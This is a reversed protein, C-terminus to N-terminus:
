TNNAVVAGIVAGVIAATNVEGQSHGEDHREPPDDYHHHRYHHHPPPPPPAYDDDYHHHHRPSAEITTTFGFSGVLIAAGLTISMLKKATTNLHFVDKGKSNSYCLIIPFFYSFYQIQM